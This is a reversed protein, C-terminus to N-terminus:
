CRVFGAPLRAIKGQLELSSLGALVTAVPLRSTAVLSDLDATSDGIAALLLAQGPPLDTDSDPAPAGDLELQLQYLSDLELLVDEISEVIGAGDRILRLCGRGNRHFISWPAAFVERGQELATGATLLSGSPLAAEVVVTALSLGSILRNRQPFHPRLPACGPPFETLLCGKDTIEGALNGHRRPYVQEIGTAMVAVTSGGVSLAGRHASADIGLALGSVVTLGADIAAAALEAAMRLGAPTAKRSGVIALCPKRLSEPDGRYYLLPPPDHITRLLSPYAPDTIAMVGAAVTQMAQQSRDLSWPAAPHGNHRRALEIAGSEAATMGATARAGYDAALLASPSGFHRLLSSMKAASIGPASHLILCLETDSDNM